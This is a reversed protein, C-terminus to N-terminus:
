PSKSIPIDTAIGWKIAVVGGDSSRTLYWTGSPPRWVAMDTKGDGDYDGPVPVDNSPAVGVGWLRTVIVGDSSRIIIWIGSSARWVAIDAVGDGDYDGPVPVDNYPAYGAGWQRSVLGGDSSRAIFWTGISPRWVAFDTVGDGDYDAPVPIDNFPAVGAGWLRSITGGNTSRLVDWVGSAPHWVAVDTKGDGDYDGPVPIDGASGLPAVMVGGDSSRLVGWVGISPRWVAFDTKGDGDYDGPVPIDGTVGWPGSLVGGDASRSVGWIGNSPRWVAIDTRGDGDFDLVGPRRHQADIVKLIRGSSYSVIYIEGSADTGFASVNGIAGSGGLEATHEILSSATAEGGPAPSLAISWVRGAVFDAYFYRTRYGAGLDRGRYVYGGTISNGVSHDYEAIPDILPLYAPGPSTIHAHAGERIRWGYNRGGVGPPQFDVEEYQNQGVDAILMAGTGGREPNDFTFKWPNRVGFAWIEPLASIPIGHVFPNDSPVVYGNPHSDAVNVDIRLLKGLFKTPNQSNNPPDDGSGGDGIGIYLYGDPGFALHGGNHNANTPHDIFRQTGGWRLDFRTAPDAVLPTATSRKFRAVVINGIPDTFYVFFRGSAAYDPSFALGLLGREGGFSISGSLDLFPTPFLVGAWIVRIRGAQEVVYQLARTAPDQVFEVPASLGSVYPALRLQASAPVAAALAMAISIWCRHFVHLRRVGTSGDFWELLAM